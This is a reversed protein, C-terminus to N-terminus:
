KKRIDILKACETCNLKQENYYGKFRDRLPQEHGLNKKKKKLDFQGVSNM